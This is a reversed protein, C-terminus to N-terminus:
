GCCGDGCSSAGGSGCDCDCECGLKEGKAIADKYTKINEKRLAILEETNVKIDMGHSPRLTCAYKLEDNVLIACGNCCGYKRNERYCPAPIGIGNSAAVDVITQNMNIVEIDLGDIKIKMM